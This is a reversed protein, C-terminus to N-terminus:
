ANTTALKDPFRGPGFHSFYESGEGCLIAAAVIKATLPALLIGNRYHASAILLGGVDPIAGIVPLADDAFPRLGAWHDAIKLDDISPAIQAAIKRLEHEASETTSKEFGVDETTSGALLRGDKRPVLYGSKSYIVRSLLPEPPEFSIIQGRIPRLEFPSRRKGINILSTWAGAALIITDAQIEGEVTRVGVARSGEIIVDTVESNECIDIGALEAYRTLAFLLRRNEVQWDNPFYLGLQVSQSVNPEVDIIEERTLAEVELGAETQWKYRDRLEESTANDFSLYLTGNTDLEIDVGTEELLDSAFRPYLDRSEACMGFFDDASAAEAQPGLMGAAAWSSEQGLRGKELVIVREAGSRKLERALSLGIVGGGVILVQATEGAM